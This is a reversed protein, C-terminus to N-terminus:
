NNRLFEGWVFTGDALACFANPTCPQKVSVKTGKLLFNKPNGDGNPNDYVDVDATATATPGLRGIPRIPKPAPPDVPAAPAAAACPLPEITQWTNTDNRNNVTTGHALGDDGIVGTYHNSLGAGPGLTWNVAFDITRGTIGGSGKGSTMKTKYPPINYSIFNTPVVRTGATSVNVLIGNDQNINFVNSFQYDKCTPALPVLPTANAIPSGLMGIAAIAASTAVVIRQPGTTSVTRM